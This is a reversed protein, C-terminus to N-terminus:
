EVDEPTLTIPTTLTPVSLGLRANLVRLHSAKNANALHRCNWTLLFDINHVSAFALHGADGGADAPMLRHQIYYEIVDAIEPTEELIPVTRLMEICLGAKPEPTVALENLTLASTCVEYASRYNDWWRRTAKRWTVAEPTKRNEHYYSPITTEIYVRPKVM